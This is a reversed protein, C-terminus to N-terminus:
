NPGTVVPKGSSQWANIGGEVNAVKYGKKSLIESAKASRNGSRCYVVLEKEKEADLEGLRSELEGVPILKAGELHGEAYEEPTRVDLLYTNPQKLLKDAEDVSVDRYKANSTNCGVLAVVILSLVLNKVIRYEM